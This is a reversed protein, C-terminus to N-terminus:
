RHQLSDTGFDLTTSLFPPSGIRPTILGSGGSGFVFGGSLDLTNSYGPILVSDWFADTLIGGFPGNLNSLEDADMGNGSLGANTGFGYEAFDPTVQTQNPQATASLAPATPPFPELVEGTSSANHPPPGPTPAVSTHRTAPGSTGDRVNILARLFAAYLAPTHYKNVAVKALVDAADRVNKIPDVGTPLYNEFELRVLKLLTIVAYSCLVFHSDPSYKLYGSPGLQETIIRACEVATSYCRSFFHAVDVHSHERAHHLGFTNIVLLSYNHQLASVMKRYKVDPDVWVEQDRAKHFGDRWAALQAEYAKIITSWDCAKLLGSPDSTGAYFFEVCRSLIRQYDLFGCLAKDGPLADPHQAWLGANRIIYDEQISYPKGMQASLSRDLNYCLIWTRERNRVEAIDAKDRYTGSLPISTPSARHLNLDTAMRIAMGLLLWTRDQEFRQVPGTGWLALLLYAQVIEVSKYGQAPTSWALKKAVNNLKGQLEGNDERGKYFKSSIACIATLLFPSRSCILPPTHVERDFLCCHRNLNTYFIEFLAFVEQMDVFELIEPQVQREIVLRRIPLLTMPGPKFYSEGAIGKGIGQAHAALEHQASRYKQISAEALLGLPNLTNDPLSPLPSSPASSPQSPKREQLPHAPTLPSQSPQVPTSHVLSSPTLSISHPSPEPKANQATSSPISAQLSNIQQELSQLKGTLAEQKKHNRKGRMSEEFVCDHSGQICRKCPPGNEAGECKMKLRRCVTCARSGRTLKIKEKKDDEEDDIRRKKKGSPSSEPSISRKSSHSFQTNPSLSM